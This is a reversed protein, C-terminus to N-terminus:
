LKCVITSVHPITEAVGRKRFFYNNASTRLLGLEEAELHARWRQILLKDL